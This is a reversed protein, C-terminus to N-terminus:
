EIDQNSAVATITGAPMTVSTVIKPNADSREARGLGHVVYVYAGAAQAGQVVWFKGNENQVANDDDIADANNFLRTALNAATMNTNTIDVGSTNIEGAGGDATPTNWYQVIETAYNRADAAIAQANSNYAQRNFMGIGVVIAVGVIIVSLVILLIQQTGM